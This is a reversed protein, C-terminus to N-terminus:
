FSLLVAIQQKHLFLLLSSSSVCTPLFFGRSFCSFFCGPLLIECPPDSEYRLSLPILPCLLPHPVLVRTINITACAGNSDKGLAEVGRALFVSHWALERTILTSVSLLLFQQQFGCSVAASSHSPPVTFVYYMFM